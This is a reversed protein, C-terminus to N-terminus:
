LEFCHVADDLDVSETGCVIALGDEALHVQRDIFAVEQSDDSRVSAALCCEHLADQSQMFWGLSLHTEVLVSAFHRFDRHAVQRLVVADVPLKGDRHILHHERAQALLFREQASVSGLMVLLHPADKCPHSQFSQFMPGDTFQAATLQLTGQQSTGQHRIGFHDDEVLRVRVDVLTELRFQIRQQFFDVAFPRNDQHAVVDACHQLVHLGDSAHVFRHVIMRVGFHRRFPQFFVEATWDLHQSVARERMPHQLAM